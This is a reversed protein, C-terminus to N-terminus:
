SVLFTFLRKRNREFREKCKAAIETKYGRATLTEYFREVAPKHKRLHFAKLGFRDVTAVVIRLLAGFEHAMEKMEENFPEKRIDDNVDRMLHVLCKQQECKISDYGPYFDSVLVGHFDKLLDQAISAERTEGYVYAVEELSTFVWVYSNVGGISISTEDAHVLQGTAIKALIRRCTGEYYNAANTKIQNVTGRGIFFGFLENLNQAAARQSMRLEIFQYLL